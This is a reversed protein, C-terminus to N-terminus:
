MWGLALDFQLNLRCSHVSRLSSSVIVSNRSAPTVSESIRLAKAPAM